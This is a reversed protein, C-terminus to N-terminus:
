KLAEFLLISRAKVQGLSDKSIVSNLFFLIPTLLSSISTVSSFFTITYLLQMIHDRPNIMVIDYSSSGRLIIEETQHYISMIFLMKDKRGEREGEKRREKSGEKGEREKKGEKRKEKSIDLLCKEMYGQSDKFKRQLGPQGQVWLSRREETELAPILSICWWVQSLCSM